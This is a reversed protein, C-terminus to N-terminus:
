REGCVGFVLVLWFVLMLANKYTNLLFQSHAGLRVLGRTRCRAGSREGAKQPASDVCERFHDVTV